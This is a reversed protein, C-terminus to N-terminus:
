TTGALQKLFFVRYLRQFTGKILIEEFIVALIGIGFLFGVKKIGSM